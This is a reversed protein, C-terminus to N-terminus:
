LFTMVHYSLKAFSVSVSFAIQFIQTQTPPSAAQWSTPKEILHSALLGGVKNESRQSDNNTLEEGSCMYSGEPLFIGIEHM